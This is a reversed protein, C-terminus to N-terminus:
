GTKNTECHRDVLVLPTRPDAHCREGNLRRHRTHRLCIDQGFKRNQLASCFCEGGCKVLLKFGHRLLLRKWFEVGHFCRRTRLSTKRDCDGIRTRLIGEGCCKGCVVVADDIRHEDTRSPSYLCAGVCQFETEVPQPQDIGLVIRNRCRASRNGQDTCTFGAGQHFARLMGIFQQACNDRALGVHPSRFAHAM